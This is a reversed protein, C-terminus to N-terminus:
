KTKGGIVMKDDSLTINEVSATQYFSNFNEDMARNLGKAIETGVFQPLVLQGATFKTVVFEIKGNAVQPTAEIKIQSGLPKTLTGFISVGGQGIRAQINKIIFNRGSIGETLVATLDNSTVPIEFSPQTPDLKLKESFVKKNQFVAPTQFSFDIAKIKQYLYFSGGIAMILLIGFFILMTPATCCSQHLKKRDLEAYFEDEQNKM